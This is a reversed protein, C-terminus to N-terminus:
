GHATARRLVDRAGRLGCSHLMSSSAGVIQRVTEGQYVWDPNRRYVRALKRASEGATAELTRLQARDQGSFESVIYAEGCATSIGSTAVDLKRAWALPAQPPLAGCGGICLAVLVALAAVGAPAAPVAPAAPAAPAARAVPAALAGPPGGRPRRSM